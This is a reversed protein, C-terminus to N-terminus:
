FVATKLSNNSIFKLYTPLLLKTEHEHKKCFHFLVISGAKTHKILKNMRLELNNIKETDGSTIDWYIIRYQKRLKSYLRLTLAGWPPRFTYTNLYSECRKVNEMYLSTSTDFGNIHSYTHNAISHGEYQIRKM